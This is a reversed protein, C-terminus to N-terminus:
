DEGWVRGGPSLISPAGVWAGDHSVRYTGGYGQKIETKEM